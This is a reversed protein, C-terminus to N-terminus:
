HLLVNKYHFLDLILPWFNFVTYTSCFVVSCLAKLVSFIVPSFFLFCISCFKSCNKLSFTGKLSNQTTYSLPCNVSFYFAFVIFSLYFLRCDSKVIRITPEVDLIETARKLGEVFLLLSVIEELLYNLQWWQHSLFM